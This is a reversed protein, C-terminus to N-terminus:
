LGLEEETTNPCIYRVPYKNRLYRDYGVLALAAIALVAALLAFIKLLALFLKM